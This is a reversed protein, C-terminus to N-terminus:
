NNDRVKPIDDTQTPTLFYEDSAIHVLKMNVKNFHNNISVNNFHNSIEANNYTSEIKVKNM